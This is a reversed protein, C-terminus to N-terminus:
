KTISGDSVEILLAGVEDTLNKITKAVDELDSPKMKSVTPSFWKPRGRPFKFGFAEGDEAYFWNSHVITDRSIRATDIHGVLADIETLRASDTVNKRRYLQHLVTTLQLFGLHATLMLGEDQGGGVLYNVCLKMMFELNSFNVSIRGIAKFHDDTLPGQLRAETGTITYSGPEANMEYGRKKPLENGSM